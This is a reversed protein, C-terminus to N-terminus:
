ENMSLDYCYLVTGEQDPFDDSEALLEDPLPTLIMLRVTGPELQLQRVDITDKLDFTSGVLLRTLKKYRFMGVLKEEDKDEKQWTPGWRNFGFDYPRQLYATLELPVKSVKLSLSKGKPELEYIAGAYIVRADLIGEKFNEAVNVSFQQLRRNGQAFSTVQLNPQPLTMRTRYHLRQRSDPGMQVEVDFAPSARLTGEVNEVDQTTSLQGGSGPLSASFTGPFVNALNSWATVDFTGDGIAKAIAVTRIRSQVGGGVKGLMAFTLSFIATAALFAAYFMKVSRRDVGIQYCIPFLVVLYAFVAPYILWWKREFAALDILERFIDTNKTWVSEANQILQQYNVTKTQSDKEDAAKLYDDNFIRFRAEDLTFETAPKPIRKVIGQGIRFVSSEDNLFALATPFKPFEGENNPLLYVRGGLMLWDRFARARAGQWFPARDLIVGRLGDLSTVSAPFREEPLQKFVGGSVSVADSGYILVTSREGKIVPPFDFRHNEGPGWQLTWDEIDNVVYPTMQIWRTEEPQLSVSEVLTAGFRHEGQRTSRFLSLEGQWATQGLNTVQFTVPCFSSVPVRGDFGWHIESVTLLDPDSEQAILSWPVSLIVAFSLLISRM